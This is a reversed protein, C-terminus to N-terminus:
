TGELEFFETHKRPSPYKLPLPASALAPLRMGRNGQPALLQALSPGLLGAQGPGRGSVETRRFEWSGGPWAVLNRGRLGGAGVGEEREKTQHTPFSALRLPGKHPRPHAHLPSM